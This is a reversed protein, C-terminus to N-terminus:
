NTNKDEYGKKRKQRKYILYSLWVSGFVIMGLGLNFTISSLDIDIPIMPSIM